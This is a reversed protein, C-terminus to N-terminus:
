LPSSKSSREAWSRVCSRWSERKLALLTRSARSANRPAEEPMYHLPMGCRGAIGPARQNHTHTSFLALCPVCTCHCRTQGSVTSSSSASSFPGLPPGPPGPPTWPSGHPNPVIWPPNPAWAPSGAKDFGVNHGTNPWAGASLSPPIWLPDPPSGPPDPALFPSGAKELGVNTPPDEAM